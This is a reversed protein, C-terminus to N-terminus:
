MGQAAVRASVDMGCLLIGSLAQSNAPDGAAATLM